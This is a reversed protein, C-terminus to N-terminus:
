LRLAEAFADLSGTKKLNSRAQQRQQDTASPKAERASPKMTKLAQQVKKEVLPKQDKLMHFQHADHLMEVIRHDAFQAVESDSFGYTKIGREVLSKKLDDNWNPIKEALKEAGESAKRQFDEQSKLESQEKVRQQETLLSQLTQHVQQAKAQLAVYRAPDAQALEQWNVNALEPQAARIVVGQLVQLQSLYNKREVEVKNSAEQEVSRRQAALEQTKRTYDSQRMHGDLADKLTVEFEEDQVKIKAKKLLDEDSIYVTEVPEDPQETADDVTAEADQQVPQEEGEKGKFRGKEDRDSPPDVFRSMANAIDENSNLPAGTDQVQEDAM